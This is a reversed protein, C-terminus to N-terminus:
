LLTDIATCQLKLDCSTSGHDNHAKMVLDKICWRVRKVIGCRDRPMLHAIMMKHDFNTSRM